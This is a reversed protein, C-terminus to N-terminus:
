GQHPLNYMLIEFIVHHSM